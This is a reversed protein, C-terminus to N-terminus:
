CQFVPCFAQKLGKIMSNSHDPGMHKKNVACHSQFDSGMIKKFNRKQMEFLVSYWLTERSTSSQASHNKSSVRINVWLTEDGSFSIICICGRTTQNRIPWHVSKCSIQACTMNYFFFFFFVPSFFLCEKCFLFFHLLWRLSKLCMIWCTCYTLRMSGQARVFLECDSCTNIPAM